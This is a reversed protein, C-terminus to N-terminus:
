EELERQIADVKKALETVVSKMETLGTAMQALAKTSPNDKDLQAQHAELGFAVGFTVVFAVAVLSGVAINTGLSIGGIGIYMMAIVMVAFWTSGIIVARVDM